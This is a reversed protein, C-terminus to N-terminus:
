SVVLEITAGQAELKAKMAEADARLVSAKVPKPAHDIIDKAEKLELGTLERIVKIIALKKSADVVTHLIVDVTTSREGEDDDEIDKDDDVDEDEGGEEDDEIYFLSDALM